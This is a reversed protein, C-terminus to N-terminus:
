KTEVREGGRRRKLAECWIFFKQEVGRFSARTGLPAEKMKGKLYPRIINLIFGGFRHNAQLHCSESLTTRPLCHEQKGCPSSLQTRFFIQRRTHYCRSSRKSTHLIKGDVSIDAFRRSMIETWDAFAIGGDSLQTRFFIQRRTHYRADITKQLSFRFCLLRFSFKLLFFYPM